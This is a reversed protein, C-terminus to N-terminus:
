KKCLEQAVKYAKAFGKLSYTDVAYTRESSEYFVLLKLGKIMYKVIRKDADRKETWAFYENEAIFREQTGDISVPVIYNIRLAFDASISIEVKNAGFISVMIYPKRISPHNGVMKVPKSTIYCVKGENQTITFVNWHSYTKEFSPLSNDVESSHVLYSKDIVVSLYFVVTVFFFVEKVVIHKIM